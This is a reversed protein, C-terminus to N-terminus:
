SRQARGVSKPQLGLAQIIGVVIFGRYTEFDFLLNL